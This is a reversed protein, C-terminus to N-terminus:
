TGYIKELHDGDFYTDLDLFLTNVDWFDKLYAREVVIVWIWSTVVIRVEIVYILKASNLKIYTINNLM